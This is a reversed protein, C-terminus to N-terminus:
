GTLSLDLQIPLPAPVAPSKKEGEEVLIVRLNMEPPCRGRLNAAALLPLLPPPVQGHVRVQLVADTPTTALTHSIKRELDDRSWAAGNEEEPCWHVEVMPRAPLGVFEHGVVRGGHGRPEVDLLLFGKEEEMEAFATREVSGPYFVPTKLPIGKLDTRLLQHRHIHGSLVAAFDAPLDMCQIVDPNSRFTYDAPGVTAGEVCHHICLLRIDAEEEEWGTERLVDPFVARIGKRHYPFGSLAVRAGGSNIWFTGPEHFIHLNPHTAFRDHPIRSREHNGPVVFVPIGLEAVELMSRFAQFVLSPPVRLRHFVDGGHVVLDVDGAKARALAGEHNALFDHGRRRREVRPRTPLDFGLHSDALLLIRISM